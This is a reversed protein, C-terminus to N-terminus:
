SADPLFQGQGIQTEQWTLGDRLMAHLIGVLRRM